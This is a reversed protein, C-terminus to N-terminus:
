RSSCIGMGACLLIGRRSFIVSCNALLMVTCTQLLAFDTEERILEKCFVDVLVRAVHFGATSNEPLASELELQAFAYMEGRNKVFSDKQIEDAFLEVRCKARVGKLLAACENQIPLLGNVKTKRTM